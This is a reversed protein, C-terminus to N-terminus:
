LSTMSKNENKMKLKIQAYMELFPIDIYNVQRILYKGIHGVNLMVDQSHDIYKKHHYIWEQDDYYIM